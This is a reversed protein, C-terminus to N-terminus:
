LLVNILKLLIEKLPISTLALLLFPIAMPVLVSGLARKGIPIARIGRVTDYIVAADAVPGIEPADLVAANEVAAHEIWRRHVLRGQEGVLASYAPIAQRRVALLVPVLALLPLLALLAWIVAFAIAPTRFSDLTAGHHVIEHAWRAALTAPIAITAPAFATPLKEVFALGGTRDPHSPVLSLGLRGLRWMWCTALVIRWISGLLLIVFIPGVINAFWWGGFGLRGDASLAWSFADNGLDPRGLLAWVAAVGIACLWPLAADRLRAMGDMMSDFKSRLEASVFGGGAFQRALAMGTSHLGTDALVLLPIAVLCRVHIDYHHLLPEGTESSFFRGRLLAWAAIPLWTLAMLLMARRGADIKGARVIRARRWWRLPADNGVLSFAEADDQPSM